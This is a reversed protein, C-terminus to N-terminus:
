KTRKKDHSLFHVLKDALVTAAVIKIADPIACTLAITGLTPFFPASTTIFLWFTGFIYCLITAFVMSVVRKAASKNFLSVVLAAPIYGIIFGGTPGALVQFGGIFGAFIPLGVAGLAVYCLVAPLALRKPLIGAVLLVALLSLTIPVGGTPISIPALVCLLAACLASYCLEKTRM